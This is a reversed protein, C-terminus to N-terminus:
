HNRPAATDKAPMLNGVLAFGSNGNEFVRKAARMDNEAFLGEGSVASASLFTYTGQDAKSARISVGQGRRLVIVPAKSSVSAQRGEFGDLSLDRFDECEIGNSFYDPLVDGWSLTLDQLKLGDIYRCYMGPIDHKFVANALSTATWRFDFNGGALEAAMKRPARITLAVHDLHVDHIWSGSDGYMVVGGEAEGVINSFRVDRVEGVPSTERPPGVAIFIAEGKGWWHGTLLQTEIAIDSFVLHATRGEREYIGLGRNSHITLNTFVGYRTNELRIGSSHSVLSCNTVGVDDSGFFALDDDGARIECDSVHVNRCVICDIGDNNPLLLSNLIHIGQIAAKESYGLHLTWNPANRLTVDRIVINKCHTFVIMTGPRGSAKTEVPGDGTELMSKLFDTGQRTYRPDFDLGYHPKAFDYFDDGSGDIVGQGVIAINEADRAVIIGVRDGEGTSNVGYVHGFGYEATSGYDAVDKSGEVVAGAMVELTVNSLLEFTGTLYVGPPFVVTGGGAASAAHVAKAIAATDLTKGDGTASYDRVNFATQPRKDDNGANQRASARGASAVLISLVILEV